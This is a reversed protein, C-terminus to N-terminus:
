RASEGGRRDVQNTVTVAQRRCMSDRFESPTCGYTRRFVYSFHSHSSFGSELALSTLDDCHRLAALAHALRLQTLYRHLSVGEVRSFLDTLYAPSVGAARAVDGLLIRDAAHASLYEKAKRIVRATSPRHPAKCRQPQHLASRMLTLVMEEVALSEHHEGAIVWERFWTRFRQLEPDIRCSRMAFLPHDALHQGDVHALESLTEFDPTIILEAYGDPLPGRMRFAEGGRVFVVQNADGVVEDGNVHWVFLGRYPLCIQFVDCFGEPGPEPRLGTLWLDEVLAVPSEFLRTRSELACIPSSARIERAAARSPDFRPRRDRLAEAM